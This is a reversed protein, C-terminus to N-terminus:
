ITEGTYRVLVGREFCRQFVEAARAGPAGDRPELEVAGVLGLHRVDIVHPRGKLAHVADAWAPALAAARAFLGEEAYVELTALGAAAALPHGSYTYGHFLEIGPAASDVIARYIKDDAAVAGMPVSANTLGKALTMLDPKVGFLEAATAAGLRGFGT